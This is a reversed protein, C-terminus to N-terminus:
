YIWEDSSSGANNTVHVMRCTVINNEESYMIRLCEARREQLHLIVNSMLNCLAV